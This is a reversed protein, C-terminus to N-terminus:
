TKLICEILIIADVKHKLKRSLALQEVPNDHLLLQCLGFRPLHEDLQELSDLIQYTCWPRNYHRQKCVVLMLTIDYMSIDLRFVDEERVLLQM